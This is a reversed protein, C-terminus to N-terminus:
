EGAVAPNNYVFHQFVDDFL